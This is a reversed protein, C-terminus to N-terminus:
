HEELQRGLNCCVRVTRYFPLLDGRRDTYSPDPDTHTGNHSQLAVVDREM